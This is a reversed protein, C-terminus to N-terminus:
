EARLPLEIKFTTGKGTESTVSIDGKLNTTVINYTIHLGLGTAGLHRQTTFFPEFVHSVNKENMGVGNDAIEISILDDSQSVLINITNKQTDGEDRNFGHILSNMMINTMVQLLDGPYTSIQIEHSVGLHVEANYKNFEPKLSTVLAELSEALRIAQVEFSNKEVAVRMFSQVLIAAKNLNSDILGTSEQIESLYSDMEHRSLHNEKLKDTLRELVGESVSNALMAVGLPTNIEHAVGAVVQGLSAMKERQILQQQALELEQISNSLAQTRQIVKEELTKNLENLQIGQEHREIEVSIRGSFIDFLTKIFEPNKIPEVYLAVVIGLVKDNAGILPTGIYGEISMDLLLQDKPYLEVVGDPYCCVQEQAVDACPTNDLSYEFNDAIAGQYGLSITRSINESFDIRAIFCYDAKIAKQLNLTIANFFDEGYTNSLGTIIEKLPLEM